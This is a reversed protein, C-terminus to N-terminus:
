TIIVIIIKCEVLKRELTDLRYINWEYHIVIQIHNICCWIMHVSMGKGSEFLNCM